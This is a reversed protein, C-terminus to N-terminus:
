PHGVARTVSSGRCKSNAREEDLELTYSNSSFSGNPCRQTRTLIGFTELEGAQRKITAESVHLKKALTARAPFIGKEGAHRQLACFLLVAGASLRPHYLIWEPLIAYHGSMQLRANGM